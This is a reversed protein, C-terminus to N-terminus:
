FLDMKSSVFVGYGDNKLGISTLNLSKLDMFNNKLVVKSIKKNFELLKPSFDELKNGSLNVIELSNLGYFADASINVLDESIRLTKM